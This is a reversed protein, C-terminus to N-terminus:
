GGSVPPILAIEDTARLMVDDAAIESNVAVQSRRLLVAVESKMQAVTSRLAAVNATAPLEVPVVDTGFVDRFRAFLLVHVTM